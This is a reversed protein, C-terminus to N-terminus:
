MAQVPLPGNGREWSLLFELEIATKLLAYIAVQMAMRTLTERTVENIHAPFCRVLELLSFHIDPVNVLLNVFSSVLGLRAAILM